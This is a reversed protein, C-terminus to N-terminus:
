MVPHLSQQHTRKATLLQKVVSLNQSGSIAHVAALAELRPTSLDVGTEQNTENGVATNITTDNIITTSPGDLWKITFQSQCRRVTEQM